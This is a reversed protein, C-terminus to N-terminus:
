FYFWFALDTSYVQGDNQHINDNQYQSDVRMVELSVKFASTIDYFIHTYFAQNLTVVPVGAVPGTSVVGNILLGNKMEKDYPDDVGYGLYITLPKIPKVWLEIWGGVDHVAGPNGAESIGVGENFVNGTYWGDLNAGYFAEGNIGLRSGIPVNFSANASWSEFTTGNYSTSPAPAAHLYLEEAYHGSLVFCLGNKGWYGIQAQMDPIASVTGDNFSTISSDNATKEGISVAFRLTNGVVLRMQPQRHGINGIGGLATYNSTHPALPSVLMWDNGASFLWNPYKL